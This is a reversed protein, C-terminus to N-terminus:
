PRRPSETCTRNSALPCVDASSPGPLWSPQSVPAVLRLRLAAVLGEEELVPPRLEYILLRMEALADRAAEKIQGLYEAAGQTQGRALLRSAAEAFVRASYVSQTASDHMDRALRQREELAAAQQAQEYLRANEIALAARRGLGALLRQEEPTFTHPRSYAVGFTGFIQGGVVLPVQMLSHIGELETIAHAVRPDAAVDEAVAPEGTLAVHMSIGARPVSAGPSLTDPGYGMWAAVVLNEHADDWVMIDAKDARAIRAAVDVWPASYKTWACRDTFRRTRPPAGTDRTPVTYRSHRGPACVAHNEQRSREQPCRKCARDNM